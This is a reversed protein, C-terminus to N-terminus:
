SKYNTRWKSQNYHTELESLAQIVHTNFNSLLNSAKTEKTDCETIRENVIANIQEFDGLSLTLKLEYVIKLLAESAQM